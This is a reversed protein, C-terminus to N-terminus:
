PNRGTWYTRGRRREWTDSKCWPRFSRKDNETDKLKRSTQGYTQQVILKTKTDGELVSVHMKSLWKLLTQSNTIRHVPTWWVARDMPNVLCSYQLQHWAKRWPMKGVWHNFRHRKHRKYQCTPEKCSFGRPFGGFHVCHLIWIVKLIIVNICFSSSHLLVHYVTFISTNHPNLVVNHINHLLSKVKFFIAKFLGSFVPINYRALHVKM